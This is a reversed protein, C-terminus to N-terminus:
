GRDNVRSVKEVKDTEDTETLDLKLTRFVTRFIWVRPNELCTKYM